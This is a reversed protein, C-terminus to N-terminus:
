PASTLGRWVSDLTRLANFNRADWGAPTLYVSPPTRNIDLGHDPLSDSVLWFNMLPIDYDYAVQATVLNIGHNGEVNDAKNTLIPVAGSAIIQDVIKRLYTEYADVSADARWNTGLNIFVIMPKYLRLECTLPSETADCRSTDTQLPSLVSAPGFGDKVAVSDHLFSERFVNITELLDPFNKGIPNRDTAYIGMFVDPTSQCDGIVSYTNPTVGLRLGTRYIKIARTSVTPIVPWSSWNYPLPRTNPTATPTTTPTHFPTPTAIKTPTDTPIQFATSTPTSTSAPASPTSAPAAPTCAALLVILFVPLEIRLKM